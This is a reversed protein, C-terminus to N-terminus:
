RHATWATLLAHAAGYAPPGAAILARLWWERRAAAAAYSERREAAKANRNSDATELHSRVLELQQANAAAIADAIQQPLKVATAEAIAHADQAVAALATMKADLTALSLSDPVTGNM